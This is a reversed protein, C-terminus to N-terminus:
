AITGWFSCDRTFQLRYVPIERVFDSFVRLLNERAAREPAFFLTNALLAALAKRGPLREARNHPAQELAFVGALPASRNQGDARFEGWFPTGFAQWAPQPRLLSIEDTLVSGAPSQAALTSKGAGSRGMFVYARGTREITAAHLLFGCQPLLIHSLLIRLLSDVEYVNQVGAFCARERGMELAGNNLPHRFVCDFGPESPGVQIPFPAPQEKRFPAYREQADRWLAGQAGQLQLPVGGIQIALSQEM